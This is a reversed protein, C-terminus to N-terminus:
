DWYEDFEDEHPLVEKDVFKRITSIYMKIEERILHDPTYFIDSM